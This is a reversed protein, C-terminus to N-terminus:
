GCGLLGNIINSKGAYVLSFDLSTRRYFSPPVVANQLSSRRYKPPLRSPLNDVDNNKLFASKHPAAARILM